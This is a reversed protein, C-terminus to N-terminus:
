YQFIMRGRNLYWNIKWIVRELKWQVCNLICEIDEEMAIKFLASELMKSACYVKWSLYKGTCCSIEEEIFDNLNLLDIGIYAIDYAQESGISVGILIVINNRIAHLTDIVYKTQEDSKRCHKNYIENRFETIQVFVKVM